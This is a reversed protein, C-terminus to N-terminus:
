LYDEMLARKCLPCDAALQMALVWRDICEKHFPHRCALVRVAEGQEFSCLCIACSADGDESAEERAEGGDAAAASPAGVMTSGSPEGRESSRPVLPEASSAEGSPGSADRGQGALSSGVAAQASGGGGRAPASATSSQREDDSWSSERAARGTSRPPLAAATAALLLPESLYPIAPTAKLFRRLAREAVRGRRIHTWYVSSFLIWGACVMAVFVCLLADEGFHLTKQLEKVTASDPDSGLRPVLYADILQNALEELHPVVAFMVTTSLFLAVFVRILAFADVLTHAALLGLAGCLFLSVACMAGVASPFLVVALTAGLSLSVECAFVITALVDLSCTVM